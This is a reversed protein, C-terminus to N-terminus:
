GLRALATRARQELSTRYDYAGEAALAARYAARAEDRRGASEHLEGIHYLSWPRWRALPDGARASAIEFHRVAEAPIRQAQYARGTRYAAEARETESLAANTLVPQLRRIAEDLRNSDYANRGLLLSRGAPTLPTTRRLAAERTAALDVDYDRAARVRAYFTEATRRDGTLEAALGAHLTTQALLASGRFTRAYRSLLPLAEAFRDQRFLAMGLDADVFPFAAAGPAALAAAARRLDAEAEVARRDSLLYFARLYALVPSGPRAAAAEALRDLGGARRENLTADVIAFATTAEVAFGGSGSAARSLKDIGGAVTGSFGFVRGLWRYKSPISGAAAECVGQGFLADPLSDPLARFRGCADRFALGARAYREERALMLARHLVATARVLRGSPTEPLASAIRDLSDNLAYFRDPFPAREEALAQWLAVSELGLAGAARTPEARGLAGFARRAAELRFALLDAHGSTWLRAGDATEIGLARAAAPSLAEPAAPQARVAPVILLLALAFRTM